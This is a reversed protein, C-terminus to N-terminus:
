RQGVADLPASLEFDESFLTVRSAVEAHEPRPGLPHAVREFANELHIKPRAIARVPAFDIELTRDPGAGVRTDGLDVRALRQVFTRALDM